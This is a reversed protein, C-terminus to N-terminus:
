QSKVTRLCSKSTLYSWKICDRTVKADYLYKDAVEVIDELRCDGFISSPMTVAGISASVFLENGHKDTCMSTVRLKRLFNELRTICENKEHSCTVLIFEEGGQRASVDDQHNFISSVVKAFRVLAQDGLVHGHIDNFDKFHDLDIVALSIFSYKAESSAQLNWCRDALGRRNLLGTLTDFFAFIEIKGLLKQYELSM